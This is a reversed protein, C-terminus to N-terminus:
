RENLEQLEDLSERIVRFHKKFTKKYAYVLYIVMGIAMCGVFMWLFGPANIKAYIYVIWLYIGPIVFYAAIWEGRLFIYYRNTTRINEGVPKAEDYPMLTFLMFIRWLIIAICLIFTALTFSKFANNEPFYTWAWYTFPTLLLVLITSSIDDRLLKRVSKGSKELLMERILRKQLGQQSDLKTNMARWVDKM